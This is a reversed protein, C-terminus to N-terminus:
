RHLSRRAQQNPLGESAPHIQPTHNIATGLRHAACAAAELQRLARLQDIREADNVIRDVDLLGAAWASVRQADLSEAPDSACWTSVHCDYSILPKSVRIQFTM